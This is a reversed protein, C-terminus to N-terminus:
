TQQAYSLLDKAHAHFAQKAALAVPTGGGYLVEAASLAQPIDKACHAKMAGWKQLFGRRSVPNLFPAFALVALGLASLRSQLNALLNNDWHKAAEPVDAIAAHVSARFAAAANAQRTKFNNRWAIYGAFAALLVAGLVTFPNANFSELMNPDGLNPNIYTM